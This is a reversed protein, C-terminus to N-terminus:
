FMVTKDVLEKPRDFSMIAAMALDIRRASKKSEKTIRMYPDFVGIV